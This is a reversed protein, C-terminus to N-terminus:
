FDGDAVQFVPVQLGDRWLKIVQDRDDLVFKVHYKDAIHEQFLEHKVVYDQRGDKNGRMHLVLGEGVHEDLFAQTADRCVEDRGSMIIVEHGDNRLSKVLNVVPTNPKDLHVLGWDYPKREGMLALTGDVDVIVVHPLSEDNHYPEVHIFDSRYPKLGSAQKFMRHIVDRGVPTERKADRAVCTEVDVQLFHDEVIFEANFMRAVHELEKVTRVSLNTNDVIVLKVDPQSLAAKLLNIRVKRLLGAVDSDFGGFARGFFMTNIDDNNIRVARGAAGAVVHKSVTSKGSAPLGRLVVVRAPGDAESVTLSEPIFVNGRSEFRSTLFDVSDDKISDSVYPNQLGEVKKVKEPVASKPVKKVFKGDKGSRPHLSDNFNSM